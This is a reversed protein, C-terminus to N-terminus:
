TDIPHTVLDTSGIDTRGSSFVDTYKYIAVALEERKRIILDEAVWEMLPQLHEPLSKPDM